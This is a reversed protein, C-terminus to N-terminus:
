ISWEPSLISNLLCAFIWIIFSSLTPVSFSFWILLYCPISHLISLVHPLAAQSLPSYTRPFSSLPIQWICSTTVNQFSSLLGHLPVLSYQNWDTFWTYTLINSYTGRQLVTIGWAVHTRKATSFTCMKYSTSERTQMVFEWNLIDNRTIIIIKIFSIWMWINTVLLLWKKKTKKEWCCKLCM